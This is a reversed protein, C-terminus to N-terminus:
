VMQEGFQTVHVHEPYRHQLLIMGVGASYLAYLAEDYFEDKPRIVILSDGSELRIVPEGTLKGDHHMQIAIQAATYTLISAAACVLDHGPEGAGAHGEMRLSVQTRDDTQFRAKLM